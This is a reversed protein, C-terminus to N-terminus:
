TNIKKKFTFIIFIIRISPFHPRSPSFFAMRGWFGFVLNRSIIVILVYNWLLYHRYYIGGTTYNSIWYIVHRTHINFISYWIRVMFDLIWYSYFKYFLFFVCVHRQSSFVPRFSFLRESDINTRIYIKKLGYRGVRYFQYTM